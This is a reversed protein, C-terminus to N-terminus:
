NMEVPGDFKQDSKTPKEGFLTEPIKIEQRSRRGRLQLILSGISVLVAFVTTSIGLFRPVDNWFVKQWWDAVHGVWGRMMWLIFLIAAVNLFLKTHKGSAEM